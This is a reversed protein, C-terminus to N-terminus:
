PFIITKELTKRKGINSFKPLDRYLSQTGGYNPQTVHINLTVHYVRFSLKEARNSGSFTMKGSSNLIETM